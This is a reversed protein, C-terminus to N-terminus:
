VREVEAEDHFPLGDTLEPAQLMRPVRDIPELPKIEEGGNAAHLEKFKRARLLVNGELSGVANNYADLTSKLRAGLDHVHAGLSRISEYLNKGLESIKRANEEMAEQQWGYAVARLLAILTTPSAPIVRKDVGFEILEPDQELAASFFMEGPLFMVVFDPSVPVKEFYSKAGLQTIHARVQRAHDVLLKQRAEEDPAELARLYADLPVKADIVIQKGGPLQVIVDPRIRGQEGQITEQETFHCHEVMGALEVVRKLQLEGWRGRVGPRKLADTLRRTEDRLNRGVGDLAAIKEILQSGTEIRRRESDRLERDMQELTKAMPSLLDEIAKKRADIDTAAETRAERLRTEALALFAENNRKLADASLAQFADRSKAEADQFAKLREAHVAAQKELDSRLRAHAPRSAIWAAIAGVAIGSLLILVAVLPSITM